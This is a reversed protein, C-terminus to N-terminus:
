DPYTKIPTFFRKEGSELDYTDHAGAYGNVNLNVGDVGHRYSYEVKRRLIDFVQSNPGFLKLFPQSRFITMGLTVLVSLLLIYEVTSQGAQKKRLDSKTRQM